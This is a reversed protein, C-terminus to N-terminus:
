LDTVRREMAENFQDSNIMEKREYILLYANKMKVKMAEAQIADTVYSPVLSDDEGGFCEMPIDTSAFPTVLSDNFEMWNHEPDERDQIFSYYHGQDATGNHIVVGKLYYQYYDSPVKPANLVQKQEESLDSETLNKEEIM